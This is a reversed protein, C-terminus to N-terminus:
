EVGATALAQYIKFKVDDANFNSKWRSWPAIAKMAVWVETGWGDCVGERVEPAALGLRQAKEVYAVLAAKDLKKEGEVPDLLDGIESEILSLNARQGLKGRWDHTFWVGGPGFIDGVQEGTYGVSHLAEVRRHTRDDWTLLDRKTVTAVAQKLAELPESDWGVAALGHEAKFRSVLPGPPMLAVQEVAQRRVIADKISAFMGMVWVTYVTGVLEFELIGAGRLHPVYGNPAVSRVVSDDVEFLGSPKTEPGAILYLFLLRDAEHLARFKRNAWLSKNIVGYGEYAPNGTQNCM